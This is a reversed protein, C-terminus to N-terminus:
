YYTGAKMKYMGDEKFLYLHDYQNNMNRRGLFKGDRLKKGGNATAFYNRVIGTQISSLDPVIERDRIIQFDGDGSAAEDYILWGAM